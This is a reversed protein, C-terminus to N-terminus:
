HSLDWTYDIKFASLLIQKFADSSANTGPKEEQAICDKIGTPYMCFNFRKKLVVPYQIDKDAVYNRFVGDSHFVFPFNTVKDDMGFTDRIQDDMLKFTFKKYFMQSSPVFVRHGIEWYIANTQLGNEMSAAFLSTKKLDEYTVGM